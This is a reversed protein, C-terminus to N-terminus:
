NRRRFILLAAAGLGALAITGPEPVTYINFSTWGITSPTSVTGGATDIGGLAASTVVGSSGRTVAQAWSTITGGQNDWVRIQFKAQNGAVVGPVTTTAGNVLGAPLGTTSSTRFTTSILLSLASSDAASSPGTYVAFTYGTGALLAGTYSTPGSGPNGLTGTPIGSLSLSPNGAEPGFIPARFGTLNNGWLLAGQGFASAAGAVLLATLLTKKM